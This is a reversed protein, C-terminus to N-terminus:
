YDFGSFQGNADMRSVALRKDNSNDEQIWGIMAEGKDNLTVVPSSVVQGQGSVFAPAGWGGAYPAAVVRADRMWSGGATGTESMAVQADTPLNGGGSINAGSVFTPSATASPMFMLASVSLSAAVLSGTFTKRFM